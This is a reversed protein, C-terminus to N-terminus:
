LPIRATTAGGLNSTYEFAFDFMGGAKVDVARANGAASFLLGAALLLTMLKKM